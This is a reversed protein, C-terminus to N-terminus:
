KFRLSKPFVLERVHYLAVFVSFHMSWLTGCFIGFINDAIESKNNPFFHSIGTNRNRLSYQSLRYFFM